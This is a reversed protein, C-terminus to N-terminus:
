LFLSVLREFHESTTTDICLELQTFLEAVQETERIDEIRRERTNLPHPEIM